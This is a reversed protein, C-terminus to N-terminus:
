ALRGAERALAEVAGLADDLAQRQGDSLVELLEAVIESRETRVRAVARRGEDTIEVLISRADEPSPERIVLGREELLAVIRTMVPPTVRESRALDSPRLTGWRELTALASFHGLSLDGHMPRLRRNVQGLAAALRYALDDVTEPADTM